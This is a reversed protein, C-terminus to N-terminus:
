VPFGTGQTAPAYRPSAGFPVHRTTMWRDLRVGDVLVIGNHEAVYVADRTFDSTTVIVAVQAHHITRATGAFRQVDPSSVKSKKAYRKCQIVVRQGFPNLAIVDAGMDRPGGQSQLVRYGAEFLLRAVLREFETPTCRDAVPLATRRPPGIKPWVLQKAARRNDVVESALLCGTGVLVVVLLVPFMSFFLDPANVAVIILIVAAGILGIVLAPYNMDDRVRPNLVQRHDCTAATDM